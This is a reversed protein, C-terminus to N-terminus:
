TRATRMDRGTFDTAVTERSNRRDTLRSTAIKPYAARRPTATLENKGPYRITANRRANISLEALRVSPSTRTVLIRLGRVSTCTRPQSKGRGFMYKGVPFVIERQEEERRVTGSM